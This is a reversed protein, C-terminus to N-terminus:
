RLYRKEMEEGRSYAKEKVPAPAERPDTLEGRMWSAVEIAVAERIVYGVRRKFTKYEMAEIPWDTAIQEFDARTITYGHLRLFREAEEWIKAQKEPTLYPPPPVPPKPPPRPVRVRRRRYKRKLERRQEFTLLSWDTSPYKTQFPRMWAPDDIKEPVLEYYVKSFGRKEKPAKWYVRVLGLQKLLHFYTRFSQYTGPKIEVGLESAIKVFSLWDKWMRYVYSNGVDQLHGRIWLGKWGKVGTVPNPGKGLDRYREIIEREFPRLVVAEV